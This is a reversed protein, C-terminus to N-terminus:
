KAQLVQRCARPLDTLTLLRRPKPKARPKTSPKRPKLRAELRRYWGDLEKGCGDTKRPPSQPRCGPSDSPCAMRIHFHYNHGWVPRVKSLWGRDKGATECLRKKIAPHVLVREVEAYSAARRILKEQGEGWVQTNVALHNKTLMFVASKTEREKYTLTRDPMPTLWIDTDLGIQHSAHSPWMPGGRPMAIDGVLLGPWGDIATSEKALRKVLAIMAPHGWNRNRSLRMAQWGEGNPPLEVAGALCGRNYRGLAAPTLSAATKAQKFLSRAPLAKIMLDATVRAHGNPKSDPVPPSAAAHSAPPMAIALILSAAGLGAWASLNAM